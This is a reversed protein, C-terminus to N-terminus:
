RGPRRPRAFGRKPGEDVSPNIEENLRAGTIEDPSSGEIKKSIKLGQDEATGIVNARSSAYLMREKISSNSPCTYIFMVADSEPYHYFTYRPSSPSVHTAVSDPDVASESASLKLTETPIDIALQVLGGQQLGGLAERADDDM